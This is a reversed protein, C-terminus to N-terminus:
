LGAIAPSGSGGEAPIAAGFARHAKPTSPPVIVNALDDVGRLVGSNGYRM